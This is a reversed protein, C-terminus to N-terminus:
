LRLPAHTLKRETHTTSRIPVFLSTLDINKNYETSLLLLMMYPSAGASLAVVIRLRGDAYPYM